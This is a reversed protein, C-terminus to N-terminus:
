QPKPGGLSLAALAAAGEEKFDSGVLTEARGEAEAKSTGLQQGVERGSLDVVVAVSQAAEYMLVGEARYRIQAATSLRAQFHFDATRVVVADIPETALFSAFAHGLDALQSGLDVDAVGLFSFPNVSTELDDGDQEIQVSTVSPRGKDFSCLVGLVRM